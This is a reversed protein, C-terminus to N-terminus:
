RKVNWTPRQSGVIFRIFGVFLAANMALFYYPLGLLGIRFKMKEAMLGILAVTILGVHIHFINLNFKSPDVLIGRGIFMIILLMLLWYICITMIPLWSDPEVSYVLWGNRIRVWYYLSWALNIIHITIFLIVINEKRFGMIQLIVKKM